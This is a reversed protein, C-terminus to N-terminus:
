NKRERNTSYTTGNSIWKVVKWTQDLFILRAFTMFLCLLCPKVAYKNTFFISVRNYNKREKLGPTIIRLPFRRFYSKAGGQFKNQPRGHRLPICYSDLSVQYIFAWIMCQTFTFHRLDIGLKRQDTIIMDLGYYGYISM